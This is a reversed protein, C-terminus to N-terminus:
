DAKWENEDLKLIDGKQAITNTFYYTIEATCEIESCNTIVGKAIMNDNNDTDGRYIYCTLAPTNGVNTGIDANVFNGMGYVHTIPKIHPPAYSGVFVHRSLNRQFKHGDTRTGNIDIEFKYSGKGSSPLYTFQSNQLKDTIDKEKGDPCQVKGSTTYNRILQDNNCDISFDIIGSSTTNSGLDFELDSKGHVELSFKEGQSPIQVGKLEVTWQGVEPKPISATVFNKGINWRANADNEQYIKGSPSILKMGIKSGLWNSSFYLRDNINDIDFYYIIVEDQTIQSKELAFMSSGTIRNYFMNFFNTIEQPNNAKLYVGGTNNAIQEMLGENATGIFSVAYVPINNQSFWNVSVSNTHNDCGDSLLFVGTNNRNFSINSISNKMKSLGSEINTGGSSDIKKVANLLDSESWNSIKNNLLKASDDFDVILVNENGLLRDKIINMLAVKRMDQPDNSGMSGSSDLIFGFTNDISKSIVYNLADNITQTDKTEAIHTRNTVFERSTIETPNKIGIMLVQSPLSVIGDTFEQLLALTYRHLPVTISGNQSYDNYFLEVLNDLYQKIATEIPSKLEWKSVVLAIPIDIPFSQEYLTMMEQSTPRLCQMGASRYDIGFIWTLVRAVNEPTPNQIYNLFYNPITIGLSVYYNQFATLMQETESQDASNLWDQIYAFFSGGHPTGVSIYGAIKSSGFDKIYQRAALGGMSHGLLIIKRNNYNQQIKCIIEDLENAQEVFTLNENDSFDLTFVPYKNGTQVLNDCQQSKALIIGGSVINGGTNIVQNLSFESAFFGKEWNGSYCFDNELDNIFDFWTTHDSNIGHILLVAPKSTTQSYLSSVFVYIILILVLRNKM